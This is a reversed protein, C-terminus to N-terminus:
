YVHGTAAHHSPSHDISAQHRIEQRIEQHIERRAEPFVDRCVEHYVGLTEDVMHDVTFPHHPSVRPPSKYWRRLLRCLADTDRLPVKGSPLLVDLIEHVGGHDYGATPIGLSLAEVTTRGFAEPDTSLSLVVGSVALIERLDGRHGTMTIHGSMGARVIERAVEDAYDQRRPHPGGVILGHIPLGDRVLAAVVRIFEMQGKWRSLRAPLTVVFKEALEPYQGRWRRQWEADPKWGYPYRERHVGRHIVRLRAPDAGLKQVAYDGVTASVAIVREGRTMVRSYFNPTYFGHVTTVLPVGARRAALLAIWAPVRSRAHIVDPQEQQLVALVRPVMALATAPNKSHVPLTIHRTGEAELQPVKTGGASIVLSHHGRQVYGRASDLVGQEVGGVNLEPLMQLITLRHNM